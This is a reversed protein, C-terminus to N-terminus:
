KKDTYATEPMLIIGSPTMNPPASSEIPPKGQFASDVGGSVKDLEEESLQKKIPEDM